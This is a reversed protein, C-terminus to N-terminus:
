QNSAGEDNYGGRSAHVEALVADDDLLPAGSAVIRARIARLDAGLSSKAPTEVTIRVNTKEPLDLRTKPTLVGKEWVAEVAISM